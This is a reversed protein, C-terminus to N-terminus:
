ETSKTKGVSSLQKKVSDLDGLVWIEAIQTGEVRFFAAGAWRIERGTPAVGLFPGRHLGKFIMRAAARDETAVLDEIICTYDALAAHISRMYGVFADVGRMVPGLSGCFSLDPRLIERAASEDAREWVDRYFRAVLERPSTM